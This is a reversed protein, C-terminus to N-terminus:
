PQEEDKRKRRMPNKSGSTNKTSVKHYKKQHVGLDQKKKMKSPPKLATSDM